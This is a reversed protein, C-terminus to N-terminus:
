GCYTIWNYEKVCYYVTIPKFILSPKFKYWKYEPNKKALTGMYLRTCLSRNTFTRSAIFGAQTVETEMSLNNFDGDYSTMQIANDLVGEFGEEGITLSKVTFNGTLNTCNGITIFGSVTLNGTTSLNGSTFDIEGTGQVGILGILLGLVLIIKKM